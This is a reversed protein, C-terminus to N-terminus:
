AWKELLRPLQNLSRVNKTPKYKSQNSRNELTNAWRTIWVSAIGANQAGLIDADLTDGIMLARGPKVGFHELAMEFIRKDPKRLDLEASILTQEFTKDLRHKELQRHVNDADAANSILGFRFGMGKLKELTPHTERPLKWHAESVSYYERIVTNLHEGSINKIRLVDLTAHFASHASPERTDQKRELAYHQMAKGLQMAFLTENSLYGLQAMAHAARTQARVATLGWDGDFYILTNGLDFLLLDFPLSRTEPM